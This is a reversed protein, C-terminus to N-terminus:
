VQETVLLDYDKKADIQAQANKQDDKANKLAKEAMKLATDVTKKAAKSNTQVTKLKSKAAM